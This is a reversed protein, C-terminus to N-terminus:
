RQGIKATEKGFEEGLKYLNKEAGRMIDKIGKTDEEFQRRDAEEQIKRQQELRVSMKAGAVAIFCGLSVLGIVLAIVWTKNSRKEGM